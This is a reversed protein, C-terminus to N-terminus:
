CAEGEPSRPISSLGGLDLESGRTQSYTQGVCCVSPPLVLYCCTPRMDRTSLPHSTYKKLTKRVCVKDSHSGSYCWWPPLHCVLPCHWLPQRGAINASHVAALYLTFCPHVFTLSATFAPSCCLSHPWATLSFLPPSSSQSYLPYLNVSHFSQTSHSLCSCPFFLYSLSSCTYLSSFLFLNIFTFHCIPYQSLYLSPPCCAKSLYILTSSKHSFSPFFMFPQRFHPLLCSCFLPLHFFFPNLILLDVVLNIFCSAGVILLRPFLQSVYHRQWLPLFFFAHCRKIVDPLQM